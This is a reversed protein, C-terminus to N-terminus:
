AFMGDIDASFHEQVTHRKVKLTRTLFGDEFTLPEDLIVLKKM